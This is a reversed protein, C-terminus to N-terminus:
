MGPHMMPGPPMPAALMLLIHGADVPRNAQASPPKMPHDPAGAAQMQAHMQEMITRMQSRFAEHTRVISQSEAPTLLGDIQRAAVDPNPNASVALQGIINGVAAKHAPSLAALIQTRAQTHLQRMRDHIQRFEAMRGQSQAAANPAPANDQALAPVAGLVAALGLTALLTKM